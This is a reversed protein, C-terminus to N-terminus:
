LGKFPDKSEFLKDWHFVFKYVSFVYMAGTIILLTTRVGSNKIEAITDGIIVSLTIVTLLYIMSKLCSFLKEGRPKTSKM